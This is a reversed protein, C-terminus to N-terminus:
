LEVGTATSGPTLGGSWVVVRPPALASAAPVLLLTAITAMLLRRGAM